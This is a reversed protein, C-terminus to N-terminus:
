GQITEDIIKCEYMDGFFEKIKEEVFDKFQRGTEDDKISKLQRGIYFDELCEGEYFFSFDKGIKKCIETEVDCWDVEWSWDEITFDVGELNEGTIFQKIDEVDISAGYICFSTTSSNSVFGTRVKM